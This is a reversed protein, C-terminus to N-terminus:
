ENTSEGDDVVSYNEFITDRFAYVWKELEKNGMSDLRDLGNQILRLADTRRMQCDESRGNEQLVRYLVDDVVVLTVRTEPTLVNVILSLDAHSFKALDQSGQRVRLLADARQIKITSEISM